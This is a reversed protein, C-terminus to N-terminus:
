SAVGSFHIVKGLDPYIPQVKIFLIGILWGVKKLAGKHGIELMRLKEFFNKKETFASMLCSEDLSM